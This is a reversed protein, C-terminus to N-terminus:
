YKRPDHKAEDLLSNYYKIKDERNRKVVLNRLKLYKGRIILSDQYKRSLKFLAEKENSLKLLGMTVWPVRKKNKTNLKTETSANKVM